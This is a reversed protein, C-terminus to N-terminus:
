TNALLAWKAVSTAVEITSELRMALPVSGVITAVDQEIRIRMEWRFVDLWSSSKWVLLSGDENKTHYGAGSSAM